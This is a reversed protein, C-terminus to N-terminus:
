RGVQRDHAREIAQRVLGEAQREDDFALRIRLVQSRERLEGARGSAGRMRAADKETTVLVADHRGALELLEACQADDLVHHDPFPRRAVIEAGGAALTAFFKDPNGIGAFAVVRRGEFREGDLAAQVARLVPKGQRAMERVAGTGGTEERM